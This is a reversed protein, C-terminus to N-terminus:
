KVPKKLMPKIAKKLDIKGNDYKAVLQKDSLGKKSEKQKM